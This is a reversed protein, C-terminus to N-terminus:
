QATRTKKPLGWVEDTPNIVGVDAGQGEASLRLYRRLRRNSLGAAAMLGFPGFLLGAVFWSSGEHEKDNALNSCFFACPIWLTMLLILFAM